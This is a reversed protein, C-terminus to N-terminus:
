HFLSPSACACVYVCACDCVCMCSCSAPTFPSLLSETSQIHNFYLTSMYAFTM